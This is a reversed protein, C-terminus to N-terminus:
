GASRPKYCTGADYDCRFQWMAFRGEIRASGLAREDLRRPGAPTSMSCARHTVAAGSERLERAIHEAVAEDAGAVLVPDAARCLYRYLRHSRTLPLKGAVRLAKIM